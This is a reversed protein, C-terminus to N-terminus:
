SAGGHQQGHVRDENSTLDRIDQAHSYDQRASAHLQPAPATEDATVPTIPLRIM